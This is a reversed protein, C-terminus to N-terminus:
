AEPDGGDVFPELQDEIMRKLRELNRKTIPVPIKVTALHGGYLTVSFQFDKVAPQQESGPIVIQTAESMGDELEDEDKDPTKDGGSSGSSLGAFALTSKYETILDPIATETFNREALLYHRIHADNPLEAHWKTWLEGHIQPRLAAEQIATAREESGERDDLVIKLALSSLRIRGKETDVLGFKKLAALATKGGSSKPSYGWYGLVVSQDALDRRIAKWLESVRVIADELDIAPYSPSRQKSPQHAMAETM